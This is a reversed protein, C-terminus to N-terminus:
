RYVFLHLCILKQLRHTCLFSRQISLACYSFYKGYREIARAIELSRNAIAESVYQLMLVREYHETYTGMVDLPRTLDKPLQVLM